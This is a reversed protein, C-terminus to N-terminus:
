TINRLLQKWMQIRMNAQAHLVGSLHKSYDTVFLKDKKYKLVRKEFLDISNAFSKSFSLNNRKMDYIISRDFDYASLLDAERVIHYAHQYVGLDPFGKDKVKSYSMTTIIQKVVAAEEKTILPRPLVTKYKVPHISGTNVMGIDVGFDVLHKANPPSSQLLFHEIENAGDKENTYKKDCMDHLLASTFIINKQTELIPYKEVEHHYIQNAYLLVNMSHSIGHSEDINYKATALLIYSFINNLFTM